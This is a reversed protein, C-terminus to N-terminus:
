RLATLQIDDMFAKNSSGGRWLYIVLQSTYNATPPFAIDKSVKVWKGFEKVQAGLEIGDNMVSTGGVADNLAVRIQASPNHDSTYVWAEVRVGRIRTPSLQGLLYNYGLSYEHEQDVKVSYLGSHAQEKTLAVPDPIWGVLSEFDNHMLVDKNLSATPSESSCASLSAASVLAFLLYKM